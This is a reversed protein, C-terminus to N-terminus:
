GLSSRRIRSQQTARGAVVRKLYLPVKVLVWWVPYAMALAGVWATHVLLRADVGIPIVFALLNLGLLPVLLVERFPGVVLGLLGAYYLLRLTTRKTGLYDALHGDPKLYLSFYGRSIRSWVQGLPHMGFVYRVMSVPRGAYSNRIYEDWSPCGDCGTRKVAVYEYNRYFVAHANTSWLPDGHHRLNNILHPALVVATVGLCAAISRVHLRHRWMAWGLLPLVTVLGSLQTLSVLATWIALGIYRARSSIAPVFVYYCFMTLTVMYLEVRLGRVSLKILYFNLALILTTLLALGAKGTYDRVLKFSCYLFIISFTLSFYRLHLDSPGFLLSFLKAFWIWLPERIDTDYPHRMGAAIGVVTIADPDLPEDTVAILRQWRVLLGVALIGLMAVNVLHGKWTPWNRYVRALM